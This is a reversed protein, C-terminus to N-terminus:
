ARLISHYSWLAIAGAALLTASLFGMSVRLRWKAKQNATALIQNAQKAERNEAVQSVRLFEADQSGLDRGASWQLAEELAQGRLLRSEDQKNSAIWANLAEAYPRLNDLMKEVWDQNFVAAYIRNYVKLVAGRKVVLGSLRLEQQVESDDAPIEGQQLIQRYRELLHSAFKENRLLRDRITRLHEPEDQSTWHNIFNQISETVSATRQVTILQCIKQTLFPQGGTWQLIEHLALKPDAVKDILGITLSQAEAFQFGNLAIARGINFPTRTKDMILDSPAAVGLLCFSLREYDSNDVRQNYCSRIFAFFDNIPFNLSLISDIEDIFIVIAGKLEVLLVEEIFRGLLQVSVLDTHDQFWGKLNVTGLLNASRWLESIVQEYWQHPSIHESGIRTMDIAICHVKECKLRYMTRVRLSSKGMQRCNLVYCFQGAKLAQYLEQDAQRAVYSPANICLSGGVQYEYGTPFHTTM